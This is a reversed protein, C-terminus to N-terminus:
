GEMLRDLFANRFKGQPDMEAALARFAAWQPFGARVAEPSLLSLKGWHARPEFPALAAEIRPLVRRVAEWDKKWTFHIALSARRYNPSLWFEDAAVARIESVHLIPAIESGLASVAMLAEFGRELPVMYESQLEEGSSPTFEMRFHPLREHWRGPVDCQATCNEASAGPIPHVNETACTLESAWGPLASDDKRKLWVQTFGRTRWDTFFSVSYASGMVAPLDRMSEFPVDLFVRQRVSFAPELRLRLRTVVGLAGVHVVSGLFRSSSESIWEARGDGLVMEMGIVSSALNGNLAGSGHTATACAGGVSIHPLSALNALALGERDLIPCLRGYTVGAQVLVSLGAADTEEVADLGSTSVLVGPTDAISSFSHRTGLAKVRGAGAVVEQVASVSGPTVVREAGYRLNGAWNELV